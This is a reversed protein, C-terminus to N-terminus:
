LKLEWYQGVLNHGFSRHKEQKVLRFGEAEYIRHAAHLNGQTWLVLKRCRCARAARVCEGVLARGIGHGRARPEVLLLRLQGISASRQVLFVCGVREGKNEAIWCRDRGPKRERLYKAVIEAVLGEFTADWGYEQAYLAGHREVVWGFDGPLPERIRLMWSDDVPRELVRQVTEMSKVLEGRDGTSLKELIAKVEAGSRRDLPAFAKKGSETLRLRKIRADKPDAVSSVLGAERFDRLIRSVYAPDMGLAHELWAASVQDSQALEWLIRMEPLSYDSGLLAENLLGVRRTYFRNFARVATVQRDLLDPSHHQAM